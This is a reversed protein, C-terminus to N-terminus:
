KEDVLEEEHIHSNAAVEMNINHQLCLTVYIDHMNASQERAVHHLFEFILWVMCMMFSLSLHVEDRECKFFVYYLMLSLSLRVITSLLRMETVNGNYVKRLITIAIESMAVICDECLVCRDGGHSLVERVETDKKCKDCNGIM